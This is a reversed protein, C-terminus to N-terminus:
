CLRETQPARAPRQPEDSRLWAGTRSLEELAAAIDGLRAPAVQYVVARGDREASALGAERLIELHKM